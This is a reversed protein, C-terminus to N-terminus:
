LDFFPSNGINSPSLFATPSVAKATIQMKGVAVPIPLGLSLDSAIAHSGAVALVLKAGREIDVLIVVPLSCVRRACDWAIPM